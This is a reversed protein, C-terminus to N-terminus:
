PRYLHIKGTAFIALRRSALANKLFAPAEAGRGPSTQDGKAARAPGDMAVNRRGGPQPRWRVITACHNAADMDHWGECLHRHYHRRRPVSFRELDNFRFPSQAARSVERALQTWRDHRIRQQTTNPAPRRMSLIPPCVRGTRRCLCNPWRCQKIRLSEAGSPAGRHPPGGHEM